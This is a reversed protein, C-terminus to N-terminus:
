AHPSAADGEWMAFQKHRSNKKEARSITGERTQQLDAASHRGAAPVGNDHREALARLGLSLRQIYILPGVATCQQRGLSAPWWDCQGAALNHLGAM